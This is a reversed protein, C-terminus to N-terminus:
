IKKKKWKESMQETKNIQRTQFITNKKRSNIHINSKNDNTQRVRCSYKEMGVYIRTGALSSSKEGVGIFWFSGGIEAQFVFWISIRGFEGGPKPEELQTGSKKITKM